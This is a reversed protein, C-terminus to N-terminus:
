NMPTTKNQPNKDDEYTIKYDVTRRIIFDQSGDDSLRNASHISAADQQGHRDPKRGGTITTEQPQSVSIKNLVYSREQLASRRGTGGTGGTNGYSGLNANLTAGLYGSQLNVVFSKLCPITASILSWGLQVSMIVSTTIQDFTANTSTIYSKVYHVHIIALM